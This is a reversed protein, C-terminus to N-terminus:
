GPPGHRHTTTYYLLLTLVTGLSLVQALASAPFSRFFLDVTQTHRTQKKAFGARSTVTSNLIIFIAYM